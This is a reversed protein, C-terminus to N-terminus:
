TMPAMRRGNRPDGAGRNVAFPSLPMEVHTAGRTARGTTTRRALFLTTLSRARNSLSFNFPCTCTGTYTWTPAYSENSATTDQAIIAAAVITVAAITVAAANAAVIM